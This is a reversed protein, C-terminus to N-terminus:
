NNVSTVQAAKGESATISAIVCSHFDGGGWVCTPGVTCSQILASGRGDADNRRM